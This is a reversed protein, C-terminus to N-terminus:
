PSLRKPMKLVRNPNEISGIGRRVYASLDIEGDVPQPLDYRGLHVGGLAAARDAPM